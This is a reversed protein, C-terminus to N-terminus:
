SRFTARRGIEGDPCIISQIDAGNGIANGDVVKVGTFTIIISGLSWKESVMKYHRKVSKLLDSVRCTSGCACSVVSLSVKMPEHCWVCRVTKDQKM